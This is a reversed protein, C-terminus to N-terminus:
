LYIEKGVKKFEESMKAMGSQTYTCIYTHTHIHTHSLTHTHTNTHTHTHKHTHTHTHTHARMRAHTVLACTQICSQTGPFLHLAPNSFEEFCGDMHVSVNLECECFSLSCVKFLTRSGHTSAREERFICVTCVPLEFCTIVRACVCVQPDESTANADGGGNLTAAYERIEQTHTNHFIYM